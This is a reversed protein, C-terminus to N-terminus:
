PAAAMASCKAFTSVGSHPAPPLASEAPVHRRDLTEDRSDLHRMAGSCVNVAAADSALATAVPPRRKRTAM